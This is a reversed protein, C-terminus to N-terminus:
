QVLDSVECPKQLMVQRIASPLPAALAAFPLAHSNARCVLCSESASSLEDRGPGISGAQGSSSWHHAVDIVRPSNTGPGDLAFWWSHWGPESGWRSFTM